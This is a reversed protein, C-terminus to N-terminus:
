CADVDLTSDYNNDLLVVRVAWRDDARRIPRSVVQCQQKSKDIRFIDYKQFYNEVFVMEIESANEGLETPVEAFAIHKIQNNEIEYEIVMSDSVQYKSEKEDNYFVNGWAETLYNMTNEPYMRAIIGMRHPKSGIYKSWDEYTKTDM